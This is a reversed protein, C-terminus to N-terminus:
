DGVALSTEDETGNQRMACDNRLVAAWMDLNKSLDYIFDIENNAPRWLPPRPSSYYRHEVARQGDM